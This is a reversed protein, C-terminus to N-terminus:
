RGGLTALVRKYISQLAGFDSKITGKEKPFLKTRLRRLRRAEKLAADADGLIRRKQWPMLTGAEGALMELESAVARSRQELIRRLGADAVAKLPGRSKKFAKGYRNLADELSGECEFRLGAAWDATSSEQRWAKAGATTWGGSRERMALVAHIVEKDKLGVLTARLRAAVAVDQTDKLLDLLKQRLNTERAARVREYFFDADRSKDPVAAVYSWAIGSLGLKEAAVSARWHHKYLDITKQKPEPAPAAPVRDGQRPVGNNAKFDSFKSAKSQGTARDLVSFHLHPATVWGTDGSRGLLEGQVVYEGTRVRVSNKQLHLYTAKTGDLHDIMVMNVRKVFRAKDPGGVNSHQVVVRVVGARAAVVPGGIVLAYDWAYRGFVDKHSFEGGNGQLITTAKGTPQVYRAESKPFPIGEHGDRPGAPVGGLDIEIDQTSVAAALLLVWLAVRM